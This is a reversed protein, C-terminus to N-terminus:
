YRQKRDILDLTLHTLTKECASIVHHVHSSDSTDIFELQDYELELGVIGLCLIGFHKSHLASLRLKGRPPRSFPPAPLRDPEFLSNGFHLRSLNPFCNVLGVFTGWALSVRDLSLSSLSDHFALFQNPANSAIHGINRLVLHQLRHFRHFSRFQPGHIVHLSCFQSCTLTRVHQTVEVGPSSAFEQRAKHIDPPTFIISIFLRKQSPYTWSKEVLSCNRLAQKDYQLYILIEDVLEYPLTM